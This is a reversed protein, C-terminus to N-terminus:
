RSDKSVQVGITKSYQEIWNREEISNTLDTTSLVVVLVKKLQDNPIVTRNGAIWRSFAYCECGQQSHGGNIAVGGSHGNGNGTGSTGDAVSGAGIAVDATGTRRTFICYMM